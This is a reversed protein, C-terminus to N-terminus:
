SWGRCEAPRCSVARRLRQRPRRCRTRACAPPCEPHTCYATIQRHQLLFRNCGIDAAQRHLPLVGAVLGVCALEVHQPGPGGVSRRDQGAGDTHIVKVVLGARQGKQILEFALTRVFNGGQLGTLRQGDGAGAAVAKVGGRQCALILADGHHAAADAGRRQQQEALLEAPCAHPRVHVDAEAIGAVAHVPEHGPAVINKYGGIGAILTM